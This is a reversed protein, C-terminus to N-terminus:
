DCLTKLVPDISSGIDTLSYEVRPPIEPYITRKIMKKDELERLQETLTKTTINELNRQLENFRVM